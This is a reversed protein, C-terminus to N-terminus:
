EKWFEVKTIVNNEDTTFWVYHFLKYEVVFGYEFKEWERKSVNREKKLVNKAETVTMGKFNVLKTM